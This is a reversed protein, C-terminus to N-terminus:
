RVIERIAEALRDREVFLREACDSCVNLDLLGVIKLHTAHDDREHTRTCGVCINPHTM